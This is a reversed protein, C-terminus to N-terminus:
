KTTKEQSNLLTNYYEEIVGIMLINSSMVDRLAQENNGVTTYLYSTLKDFDKMSVNKNTDQCYKLLTAGQVLGYYWANTCDDIGFKKESEKSVQIVDALNQTKSNKRVM